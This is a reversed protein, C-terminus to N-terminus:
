LKDEKQKKSVEFDSYVKVALSAASFVLLGLIALALIVEPTGGDTLLNPVVVGVLVVTAFTGLLYHAIGGTTVWSKFKQFLKM